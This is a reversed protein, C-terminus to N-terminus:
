HACSPSVAIRGIVDGERGRRFIFEGDFPVWAGTELTGASGGEAWISPKSAGPAKVEIAVNGAAGTWTVMAVGNTPSRCLQEADMDVKAMGGGLLPTRASYSNRLKWVVYHDDQYTIAADRKAQMSALSARVLSDIAGVGHKKPIIVYEIGAEHLYQQLAMGSAVLKPQQWAYAQLIEYQVPLWWGAPLEENLNAIELGIVRTGPSMSTFYRAVGQLNAAILGQSARQTYELPLRRMAHDLARTGPGWSGTVFSIAGGCFAFLVMLLGFYRRMGDGLRDAQVVGWLTLCALPVIFYNGDGAPILLKYGFMVAFFALGMAFLPWSGSVNKKRSVMGGLLLVAIPLFLWSNGTWTIILHSYRAPDFLIGWFGEFFPFRQLGEDPPLLGVPYKLQLGLSQQLKVVSNPAVLVVGSLLVSRASIMCSLLVTAAAVWMGHNRLGTIGDDERWRWVASYCLIGVLIAAYPINALRAQVGLSLASLAVWLWEGGLGKRYRIVGLVALLLLWASFADGKATVAINALAPLTAILAAGWLRLARQVHYERLIALVTLVILLWSFIGVGFILSVSGLGSFPLLLAEYLKPYYHAVSALGQAAYLNGEGVLVEEGQLGYWLSDYDIVVSAKAFLALFFGALMAIALRDLRETPRMARGVLVALRPGRNVAIAGGLVAIAIFRIAELSGLGLASCIWIVLSWTVVGLLGATLARSPRSMSHMDMRRLFCSGLAFIGEAYLYVLVISFDVGHRRAFLWAAATGLVIRMRVNKLSLAVYFVAMLALVELGGQWAAPQKIHWDFPGKSVLSYLPAALFWLAVAATAIKRLFDTSDKM